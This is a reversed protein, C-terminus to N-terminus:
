AAAAKAPTARIQSNNAFRGAISAVGCFDMDAASLYAPDAERAALHHAQQLRELAQLLVFDDKSHFTRPADLVTVRFAGAPDPHVKRM